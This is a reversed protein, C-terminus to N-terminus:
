KAYNLRMNWRDPYEKPHNVIDGVLDGVTRLSVSSLRDWNQYMWDLLYHKQVKGIKIWSANLVVSAIWGWAENKSLNFEHYNVRDRIASEHIKKATKPPPNSAALPINSTVIFTVNDTPISIGVGNKIQFHRLANAIMKDEASSSNEYTMIQTTMNKNWTFINRDEDMAGKMVSLSTSDTLITACDDIYIYVREGNSNYVTNALLVCFANMSTEGEVNLLIKKKSKATLIISSTKGVGPGGVIFYHRKPQIRLVKINLATEVLENYLENYRKGDAIYALQQTTFPKISTM